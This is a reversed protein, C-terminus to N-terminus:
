ELVRKVKFLGAESEPSVKVLREAEPWAHPEDQRLTLSSSSTLNSIRFEFDSIEKEVKNLIEMYKLVAGLQGSFKEKEEETLRLRALKSVYEVIERSLKM